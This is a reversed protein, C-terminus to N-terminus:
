TCGLPRTGVGREASLEQTYTKENKRFKRPRYCARALACAEEGKHPHVSLGGEGQPPACM